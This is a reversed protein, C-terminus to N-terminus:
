NSRRLFTPIDFEDEEPGAPAPNFLERNYQAPAAQRPPQSNVAPPPTKLEVGPASSHRRNIVPPTSHRPAAAAPRPFAAGGNRAIVTRVENGSPTTRAVPQQIAQPIETAVEDQPHFGTAIVTIQIESDLDPDFVAGFIINADEDAAEQILCAAADVEALTMDQSGTVNILIGTAGQISVDELLPSEIAQTAAEIARSEGTARGTGM